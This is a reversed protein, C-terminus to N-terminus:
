HKNIEKTLTELTYKEQQNNNRITITKEELEKDGIIALFPIKEEIGKKIKYGIKENSVDLKTRINQSDLKQIIENCYPIVNKNVSLVKLQTPALWLPFKGSFQEILIGIFREISGLLARHIMIPQIKEGKNNIYYMKFREPLNFDFQITSCQWERQIADEIKIDIKPGYFAGGGEDIKYPINLEKVTQILAKEAKEWKEKSGVSKEKPQTSIYCTYKTFSFKELMEKALLLSNKIEEQIQEETCIIHADDQTFGRVRMLGHLVGSREYRYVTGLEAYRIPLDKYSHHNSKYIQIHFPCNMPKIYYDQGEIDIKSFMSEKYFELHGSTKWLESKGIHPTNILDYGAKQHKEKWYTEIYNRLFAGKPHWLILGSGIEENISFLDLQKGLIRHDRKKAEKLHNLHIALEKRSDFALGYIRQLMKNQESGKWYAGAVKLLKFAKIEGTHNIHPGKCLDTFPGNKYFSYENLNLDHILETKYTQNQKQLSEIASNKNLNFQEFPQKENIIEKMKDEIKQLDEEKLPTDVEFDYYFGNEIPPGIGLKTNPYFHLVAQALVHAASHRTKEIGQM